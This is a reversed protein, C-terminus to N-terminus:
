NLSYHHYLVQCLKLLDKAKIKQVQLTNRFVTYTNNISTHINEGDAQAKDAQVTTPKGLRWLCYM